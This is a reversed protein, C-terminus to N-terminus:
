RNMYEQDAKLKDRQSLDAQVYQMLASYSNRANKCLLHWGHVYEAEVDAPRLKIMVEWLRDQWAELEKIKLEQERLRDIALDVADVIQPGDELRPYGVEFFNKEAILSARTRPLGLQGTAGYQDLCDAIDATSPRVYKPPNNM